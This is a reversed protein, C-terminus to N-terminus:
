LPYTEVVLAQPFTESLTFRRGWGGARIEDSVWSLQSPQTLRGFIRGPLNFNAHNLSNYVDFRLQIKARDHLPEEKQLSVDLDALGPGTVINRGADGFTDQPASRVGVDQVV